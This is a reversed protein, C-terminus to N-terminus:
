LFYEKRADSLLEIEIGMRDGLFQRQLPTLEDPKLEGPKAYELQVLELVIEAAYIAANPNEKLREKLREPLLKPTYGYLILAERRRAFKGAYKEIGEQPIHYSALTDRFAKVCLAGSSLEEAAKAHIQHEQHWDNMTM